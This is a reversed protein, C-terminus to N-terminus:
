EALTTAALVREAWVELQAGSASAVRREIEGDVAPGFRRRLLRLLLKREGQELGQQVGEQVAERRWIEVIDQTTMLFEQDDSTQQSPDTPVTLRLRVLIPLALRREPADEPLAQLDAIARRMVSDAGLLRVLLTDRAVRLESVVVLRTHHLPPSEYLGCLDGRMPRFGLGDIGADPRGSSIVWQIPLPPLTKRRSLYHRFEGHKILCTRLEDGNPTNHFFELTVSGSTIRGLLGLHDPASAGADHPGVWLDVRRADAPVEADTEVSRRGELADRVLQKGFRDFPTRTVAAVMARRLVVVFFCRTFSLGKLMARPDLMSAQSRVLGACRHDFLGGHRPDSLERRLFDLFFRPVAYGIAM